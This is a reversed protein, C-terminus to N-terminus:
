IGCWRIDRHKCRCSCGMTAISANTKAGNDYNYDIVAAVAAAAATPAASPTTPAPASAPRASESSGGPVRCTFECVVDVYEDYDRWLELPFQGTAADRELDEM